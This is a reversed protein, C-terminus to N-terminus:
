QSYIDMKKALVWGNLGCSSIIEYGQITHAQCHNEADIRTVAWTGPWGWKKGAEFQAWYNKLITAAPTPEIANLITGLELSHDTFFYALVGSFKINTYEHPTKETFATELVIDKEIDSVTYRILRNDHITIPIPAVM